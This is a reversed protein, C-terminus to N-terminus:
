NVLTGDINGYLVNFTITSFTVHYGPSSRPVSFPGKHSFQYFGFFSQLKTLLLIGINLEENQGTAM